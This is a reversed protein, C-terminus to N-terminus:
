DCKDAIFSKIRKLNQRDVAEGADPTELIVPLQAMDHISFFNRFGQAGITGEGIHEHKDRASGAPHASDNAHILRIHVAGLFRDIDHELRQVDSGDALDYGSAHAHCTDIVFGTPLSDGARSAVANRMKNLTRFCGGPGYDGATNELLLTPLSDVQEAALSAAKLISEAAQDVGNQACEGKSSGPHLVYYPVGFRATLAMEDALRRVTRPRLAPDSTCPNILYCAHVAIPSIGYKRVASSFAHAEENTRCRLTWGRPNGCFIQFIGCGRRHAREVSKHLGGRISVHFGASQHNPAM